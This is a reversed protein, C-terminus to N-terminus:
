LLGVSMVIGLAVMIIGAILHLIRINRDKWGSVNEVKAFGVYVFLTILLM